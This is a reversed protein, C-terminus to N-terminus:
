QLAEGDRERILVGVGTLTSAGIGQYSFGAFQQPGSPIGVISNGNLGFAGTSDSPINSDWRIRTFGIRAENVISPSFVHVWTGGGIHDPYIDQNPFTLPLVAVSGDSSKGESYFATIKDAARPDAGPWM